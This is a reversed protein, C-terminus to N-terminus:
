RWRWDPAAREWYATINSLALWIPMIAADDSLFRGAPGSTRACARTSANISEIASARHLDAAHHGPLGREAIRGHGDLRRHRRDPYRGRRADEPRQLVEDLVKFASNEKSVGRARPPDDSRERARPLKDDLVGAVSPPFAHGESLRISHVCYSGVLCGRLYRGQGERGDSTVM